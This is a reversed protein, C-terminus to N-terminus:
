EFFKIISNERDVSIERFQKMVSQGLLLPAQQSQVVIAEIDRLNIENGIAVERLIIRLGASINGDATQFQQVDIIDDDTLLGKAYMYEAEILTICTSSAGTDFIMDLMLGNNISVPITITNGPRETYSIEIFDGDLSSYTEGYYDGDDADQYVDDLYSTDSGSSCSNCGTALQTILIISISFTLAKM